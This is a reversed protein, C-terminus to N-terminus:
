SIGGNVFGLQRRVQLGRFVSKAENHVPVAILGVVADLANEILKSRTPLREQRGERVEGHSLLDRGWRKWQRKGEREERAERHALLNSSKVVADVVLEVIQEIEERTREM